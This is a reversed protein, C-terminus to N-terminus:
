QHAQKYTNLGLTNRRKGKGKEKSLNSADHGGMHFYVASMRKGYVCSPRTLFGKPSCVGINIHEVLNSVTKTQSM